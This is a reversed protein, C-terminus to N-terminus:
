KKFISDSITDYSSSHRNYNRERFGMSKLKAKTCERFSLTENKSFVANHNEISIIENAYDYIFRSGNDFVCENINYHSIGDLVGETTRFRWLMFQDLSM